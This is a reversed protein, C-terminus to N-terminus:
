GVSAESYYAPITYSHLEEAAEAPAFEARAQKELPRTDSYRASFHGLLLRDADAKAAVEGAERATSHGTERARDRLEEAFTADHYVLAAERALHVGGACPRTDTVYAFAAGPRTPGIVQDAEVVTGDAVTVSKGDQLAQFQRPERIGLQRAREADVRGPWDNEQYRYGVTFIRHDLVHAEVRYDSHRYVIGHGFDPPIERFELPFGPTHGSLSMVARVTRELGEPGVVTVPESRQQMGMTALLGMVGYFHDGHFHTLFIAEIRPNKLGAAIMQFQTGEGCDFLLLRGERILATSSLHREHAPVASSIGLPVIDITM